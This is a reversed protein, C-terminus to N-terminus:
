VVEDNVLPKMADLNRELTPVLSASRRTVILRLSRNALMGNVLAKVAELNRELMPMSPVSGRTVILQRSRNSCKRM